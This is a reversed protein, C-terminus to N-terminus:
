RPAEPPLPLLQRGYYHFRCDHFHFAADDADSLIAAPLM